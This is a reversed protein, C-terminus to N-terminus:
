FHMYVYLVDVSTTVNDIGTETIRVVIQVIRCLTQLIYLICTIYIAYFINVNNRQYSIESFVGATLQVEVHGILSTICCMWCFCIVQQIVLLQIVLLIYNCM